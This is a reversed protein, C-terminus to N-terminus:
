RIGKAKAQVRAASVRDYEAKITYVSDIDIHSFDSLNLNFNLAIAKNIINHLKLGRM